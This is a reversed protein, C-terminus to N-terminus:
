AGRSPQPAETLHRPKYVHNARAEFAEAFRRFAREFVAGAVMAFTRSKMEWAIFFDVESSTDDIPKFSWRNILSQFPGTVYEVRITLDAPNMTVRSTFTDRILSYAVTMDAIIVTKGDRQERKRVRLSECLPVFHPYNEVDGVLDYMQQASHHVRKTTHHQPM